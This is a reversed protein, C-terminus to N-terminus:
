QRPYHADNWVGGWGDGGFLDELNVGASAAFGTRTGVNGKSMQNWYDEQSMQPPGSMGGDMPEHVSPMDFIQNHGIGLGHQDTLDDLPTSFQRGPTLQPALHGHDDYTHAAASFDYSQTANAQPPAQPHMNSPTGYMGNENSGSFPTEMGSEPIGYQAADVSELTSMPQNPYAFPNDSPFMVNKLDPIQARSPRPIFDFQGSVPSTAAAPGSFNLPHPNYPRQLTIAGPSGGTPLPEPMSSRKAHKSLFDQPLTRARNSILSSERLSNPTAANPASHNGQHQGGAATEGVPPPRKRVSASASQM